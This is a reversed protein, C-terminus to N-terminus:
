IAKRNWTLFGSAFHTSQQPAGQPNASRSSGAIPAHAVNVVPLTAKCPHGNVLSLWKRGREHDKCHFNAFRQRGGHSSRGLFNCPVTELIMVAPSRVPSNGLELQHSWPNHGPKRTLRRVLADFCDLVWRVGRFGQVTRSRPGAQSGTLFEYVSLMGKFGGHRNGQRPPAEHPVFVHPSSRCASPMKLAPALM